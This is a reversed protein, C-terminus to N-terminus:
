DATVSELKFSLDDCPTLKLNHMLISRARTFDVKNDPGREYFLLRDEVLVTYYVKLSKFVSIIETDGEM